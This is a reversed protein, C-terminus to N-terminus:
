RKSRALTKLGNKSAFIVIRESKDKIDKLLFREGLETLKYDDKIFLEDLSKPLKPINALRSRYLASKKEALQPFSSALEQLKEENIM